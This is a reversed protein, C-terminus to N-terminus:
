GDCHCCCVGGSATCPDSVSGGGLVRNVDEISNCYYQDTGPCQSADVCECEHFQKLGGGEVGCEESPCDDAQLFSSTGDKWVATAEPQDADVDFYVYQNGPACGHTTDWQSDICLADYLTSGADCLNVTAKHYKPGYEGLPQSDPICFGEAAYTEGNTIMVFRDAIVADTGGVSILMKVDSNTDDCGLFSDKADCLYETSTARPAKTICRYVKNFFWAIVQVDHGTGSNGDDDTTFGFQLLEGVVVSSIVWLASIICITRM